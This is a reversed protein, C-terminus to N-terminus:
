TETYVEHGSRRRTKEGKTTQKYSRPSHNHQRLERERERKGKREGMTDRHAGLCKQVRTDLVLIGNEENKKQHHPTQCCFPLRAQRRSSFLSHDVAKGRLSVYMCGLTYRFLSSRSLSLPLPLHVGGRGSSALHPSCTSLTVM